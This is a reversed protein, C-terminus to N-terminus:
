RRRGKRSKPHPLRKAQSRDPASAQATLEFRLGGTLPAAEVLTVAVRQGLRYATGSREGILAHAREDHRFREAGLSRMPILGDAGTDELKVFLGFRTVGSIRGFFEAGIRDSMFAALYREVAEREAAMARRECVSIDAAIDKLKDIEANTLGDDGLGLAKILARHVILDAYRRIPSTFHAYSRLNLGFHGINVPDYIALSQSRLVVENVLDRHPSDHVQSLIATLQATKIATTGSLKLNLTRLFDALAKLREPSPQDHVRYILATRKKELTEAAAVNAQIMFEEILRHAELRERKGVSAVKGDPSLVIKHEAINLDLPQRADRAKALAEYCRWLPELVGKVLPGAKADALGDIAAQAQEYSLKAASRMTAREFRHSLVKGSPSIRFHVALVPRDVGERLSCLDGSLRDPLMPVVRDPFYVSNGRRRAERDLASGPKVYAAVDAIAVIAKFGGANDQADDAEAWVADDHDRADHPDITILPVKRLDARGAIKALSITESEKVVPAPFETPIGHTHISILSIARPASMSGLREAIRARPLGALRGAQPEAVVLEGDQASNADAEDVMFELRAKRDVPDIRGKRGLKRYVGLIRHASQGLRRIIQAECLKPSQVSIRALFREGIGLAAADGDGRAPILRIEPQASAHEWKQFRCLLEGDADQGTVEVIAIEPLAHTHTVPPKKHKPKTDRKEKRTV